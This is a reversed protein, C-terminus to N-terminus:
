WSQNWSLLHWRRIMKRTKACTRLERVRGAYVQFGKYKILEKIRDVIWMHGQQDIVGVDGTHYFGDEDISNRTAEPNNIYGKWHCIFLHGFWAAANPLGVRSVMMINPGKLWIEGREGTGLAIRIFWLPILRQDQLIYDCWDYRQWRWQRDQM